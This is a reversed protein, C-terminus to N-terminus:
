YTSNTGTNIAFIKKSAIYKSEWAIVTANTIFIMRASILRYFAADHLLLFSLSM